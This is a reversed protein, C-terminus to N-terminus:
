GLGLDGRGARDGVGGSGAPRRGHRRRANSDTDPLAVLAVTRGALRGAVLDPLVEDTFTDRNAIANEAGTLDSRLQNKEDRLQEVSANLSNAIQGRLPGAGLVVGVALALFVSVLSVVHYRFDIM